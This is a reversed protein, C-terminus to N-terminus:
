KKQVFARIDGFFVAKHESFLNPCMVESTNRFRCFEIYFNKNKNYLITAFNYQPM